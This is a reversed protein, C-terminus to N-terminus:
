PNQKAFCKDWLDVTKKTVPVFQLCARGDRFNRDHENRKRNDVCRMKFVRGHRYEGEYSSSQVMVCAQKVSIHFLKNEILLKITHDPCMAKLAQLLAVSRLIERKLKKM